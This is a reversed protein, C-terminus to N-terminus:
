DSKSTYEIDEEAYHRSCIYMRGKAIREKEAKGMVRYRSLINIIKDRWGEYDYYESKRTTIQFFKVAAHKETECSTCQPFACNRGPM